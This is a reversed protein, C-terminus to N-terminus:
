GEQTQQVEHGGTEGERAAYERPACRYHKQSRALRVRRRAEKLLTTRTDDEFLLVYAAGTPLLVLLLGRAWLPLADEERTRSKPVLAELEFRSMGARIGLQRCEEVIKEQDPTLVTEVGKEDDIEQQLEISALQSAKSTYETTTAAIEYSAYPIEVEHKIAGLAVTLAVGVFLTTVVAFASAISLRAIRYEGRLKKFIPRTEEAKNPM